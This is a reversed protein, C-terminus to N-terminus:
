RSRGGQGRQARVPPKERALEEDLARRAEQDLLRQVEAIVYPPLPKEENQAAHVYTALAVRLEASLSREHAEAITRVEEVLSRPLRVTTTDATTTTM